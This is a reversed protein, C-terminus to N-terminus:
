YVDRIIENSFISENGSLDYATGAIYYRGPALNTIEFATTNGVDISSTYQGSSTGYYIRYGALDTLQSGDANTTTPIWSVTIVASSKVDGGCGFVIVSIIIIALRLFIRCYVMM